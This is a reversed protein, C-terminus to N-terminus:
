NLFRSIVARRLFGAGRLRRAGDPRRLCGRRCGLPQMTQAIGISSPTMIRNALVATNLSTFSKASCSKAAGSVSSGTSVASASFLAEAGATRADDAGASVAGAAGCRLGSMIRFRM